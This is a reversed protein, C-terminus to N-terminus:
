PYYYCLSSSYGVKDAAFDDKLKEISEYVLDEEGNRQIVFKGQGGDKLASIPFLVYEVFSISGNEELIKPALPSKKLKRRIVDPPDLLDIKSDEESSSMKGGTLGPIMTNMLHARPKHGIKPLHEQAYTFIKRQDVTRLLKLKRGAFSSLYVYRRWVARGRRPVGRGSDALVSIRSQM